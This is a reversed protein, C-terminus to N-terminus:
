LSFVRTPNFRSKSSARSKSTCYSLLSKYFDWLKARQERDRQKSRLTRRLVSGVGTYM